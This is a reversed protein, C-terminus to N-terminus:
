MIENIPRHIIKEKEIGISEDLIALTGNPYTFNGVKGADKIVPEM